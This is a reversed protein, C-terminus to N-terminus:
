KVVDKYYYVINDTQTTDQGWSIVDYAGSTVRSIDAYKNIFYQNFQAEDMTWQTYPDTIDNSLMVLWTDDVSGYYNQAIDEPKEGERVTYPLFIYPDKLLDDIIKSRRTIDTVTKGDYQTVPFNTFYKSM